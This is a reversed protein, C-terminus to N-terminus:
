QSYNSWYRKPDVGNKLRKIGLSALRKMLRYRGTPTDTQILMSPNIDYDGFQGEPIDNAEVRSILDPLADRFQQTKFVPHLKYLAGSGGMDVRYQNAALMSQEFLIELHDVMPYGSMRTFLRDMRRRPTPLPLNALTTFLREREVLHTRGGFTLVKFAEGHPTQYPVGGSHYPGGARPGGLPNVAFVSADSDVVQIAEDFWPGAGGLLLDSALHFFYRNDSNRYQELFAHIPIGKFDFMPYDDGGFFTNSVWQRASTSNDVESVRINKFEAKLEDLFGDLVTPDAPPDFRNVSILVDSAFRGLQRMQHPLVLRAHAYDGDTIPIQVTCVVPEDVAQTRTM